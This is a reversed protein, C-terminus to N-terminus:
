MYIEHNNLVLDIKLKVMDSSIEEIDLKSIFGIKNSKKEYDKLNREILPHYIAHYNKSIEKPYPTFRGFHKGNYIVFINKLNLAVAIHPASTENSLILDGNSIVSLLELLTTKGTLNLINKDFYKELENAENIENKSGCIVIDYGYKKKLHNGIKSFKEVSWKRYRDSAGIFLIAYKKSLKFELNEKNLSIIPKNINIKTDFLNEFFEKNRYFEFMPEKQNQILKTYYKDSINKQWVEINSTNSGSGIKEKANILKVINDDFFFTRIFIPNIIIEYGSSVIEKLKRYRYILDKSFSHRDLWIFKDVFKYDLEETLNKRAVNGILTISYDKYKSSKKLIEIFNRFLIYDGIADLRILVLSKPNIKKSPRILLNIIFYAILKIITKFKINM